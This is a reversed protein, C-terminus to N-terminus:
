ARPIQRHAESVDATLAFTRIAGTAKERMARKLDATVPGREQDRIRTRTNVAIGNTGDFLVGASIVGSRKDKRNAGFSARTLNTFRARPSRGPVWEFAQLSTEWVSREIGSAKFVLAVFWFDIPRDLRGDEWRVMTFGAVELKGLVEEKLSDIDGSVFPCHLM